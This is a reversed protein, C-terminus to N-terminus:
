GDIYEEDILVQRFLVKDRILTSPPNFFRCVGKLPCKDCGQNDACVMAMQGLTLHRVSVFRKAM